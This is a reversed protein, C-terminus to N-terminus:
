RPPKRRRKLWFVFVVVGLILWAVVDIFIEHADM